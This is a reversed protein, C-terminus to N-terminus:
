TKDLLLETAHGCPQLLSSSSSFALLIQRHNAATCQIHLKGMKRNGDRYQDQVYSLAAVSSLILRSCLKDSHKHKERDKLVYPTGSKARCHCSVTENKPSESTPVLM